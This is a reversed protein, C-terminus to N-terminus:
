IFIGNPYSVFESLWYHMNKEMELGYFVRGRLLPERTDVTLLCVM